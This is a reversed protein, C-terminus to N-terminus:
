EGAKGKFFATMDEVNDPFALNGCHGGRPYVTARDGFLERLYDLEGPALIIEDANTMMGIHDATSLYSEIEQLSSLEILRDRTLSADRAGFYPVMIGDLYDAFSARFGTIAFPTLSTTIGLGTNKRVVFGSNTIVDSTFAMNASSFRFALGILGELAEAGPKLEQYAIYMFDGVFEVHQNEQYVAALSGFVHDIYNDIGAADTPVNDDLMADLINVSNYLSVPPCLVLVKKFNFIRREEDLKAIFAANFGGLSYGTMFFDTVEITDKVQAYAAEMVKYLDEADDYAHGPVSTASAATVFNSHTPSPLVIVHFGAKYFVRHLIDVTRGTHGAGTGAIVFILPAPQKQKLFSYRLARDYWFIEPIEGPPKMTLELTKRPADTPLDAQYRSPTGAVTALLPDEFPFDYAGARVSFLLVFAAVMILLRDRWNGMFFVKNTSVAYMAGVLGDEVKDIMEHLVVSRECLKQKTLQVIMEAVAQPTIRIITLAM